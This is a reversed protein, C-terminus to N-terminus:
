ERDHDVSFRSAFMHRPPFNSTPAMLGCKDNSMKKRVDNHCRADPGSFSPLQDYDVAVM